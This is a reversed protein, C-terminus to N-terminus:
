HDDDLYVDDYSASNANGMEVDENRTSTEASASSAELPAYGLKQIKSAATAEGTESVDGHGMGVLVQSPATMPTHSSIPHLPSVTDAENLRSSARRKMESERQGPKIRKVRKWRKGNEDVRHTRLYRKRKNEEQIAAEHVYYFQNAHPYSGAM